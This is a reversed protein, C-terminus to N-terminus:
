IGKIEGIKEEGGGFTGKKYHQKQQLIIESKNISIKRLKEWSIQSKLQFLNINPSNHLSLIHFLATHLPLYLNPYVHHM